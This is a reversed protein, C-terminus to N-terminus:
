GNREVARLDLRVHFHLEAGDAAPLGQCVTGRFAALDGVVERGRREAELAIAGDSRAAAVGAAAGAIWGGCVHRAMWFAHWNHRLCDGGSFDGCLLWHAHLGRGNATPEGAM